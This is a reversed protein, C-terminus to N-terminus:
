YKIHFMILEGRQTNKGKSFIIIGDEVSYFNNLNKNQIAKALEQKKDFFITGKYTFDENLILIAFEKDSIINFLGKSNKESMSRWYPLVYEKKYKNYQLSAYRFSLVSSQKAEDFVLSDSPIEKLIQKEDRNVFQISNHKNTNSNYVEIQSLEEPCIITKENNITILHGKHLTKKKFIEPNVKVPIYLVDGNFPDIKACIESYPYKVNYAEKEEVNFRIMECYVKKDYPNWFVPNKHSTFFIKEDNTNCKNKYIIEKNKLCYTTIFKEQLLFVSDQNYMSISLTNGYQAISDKSFYRPLGVSKYLKFQNEKTKFFVFLSDFCNSKQYLFATDNIMIFDIPFPSSPSYGAFSKETFITDVEFDFDLETIENKTRTNNCSQILFMIVLFFLLKNKM